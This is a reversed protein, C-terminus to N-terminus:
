HLSLHEQQNRKSRVEREKAVHRTASSRLGFCNVACRYAGLGQLLTQKRLDRLSRLCSPPLSTSMSGSLKGDAGRHNTNRAPTIGPGIHKGLMTERLLERLEHLEDEKAATQSGLHAEPM